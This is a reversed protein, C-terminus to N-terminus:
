FEQNYNLIEFDSEIVLKGNQPKNTRGRNEILNLICNGIESM